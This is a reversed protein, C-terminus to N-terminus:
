NGAVAEASEAVAEPTPLPVPSDSFRALYALLDARQNAKSLAYVMKSGKAVAQPNALWEDLMEYTWVSTSLAEVAGSYRFGDIAAITRGVVGYLNPGTKNAGGKEITHCATCKKWQKAGRDGDAVAMMEAFSPGEDVAVETSTQEAVEVTFAPKDQEEHHFPMEAVIGLVMIMLVSAIVAAFVKNWEFSDM